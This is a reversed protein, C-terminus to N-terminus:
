FFTNVKRDRELWKRDLYRSFTRCIKVLRRTIKPLSRDDNSISPLRSYVCSDESTLKLSGFTKTQIKDETETSKFSKNFDFLHCNGVELSSKIPAMAASKRSWSVYLMDVGSMTFLSIGPSCLFGFVFRYKDTIM